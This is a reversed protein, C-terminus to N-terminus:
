PRYVWASNTLQIRDDYGGAILVDGNALRTSTSFAFSAGLSGSVPIFRRSGADFREAVPAGGAVLVDGNGLPVVAAAIKYRRSQMTSAPAFVGTAPDYREVTAYRGAGDRSDSGGIVLVSGDDLLVGAHKHRPQTMAGTPTFAGTRPDYLEATALVGASGGHGGILLVRGDRLVVAVHGARRGALSGANTMTGEVPDYLEASALRNTGDYGGAILVRGDRLLSATADSRGTRLSPAASFRNSGPDYLEASTTPTREWGGAIFVRGDTLATSTHGGARETSMRPGETFRRAAPDYVETSSSLSGGECSQVACGGTILVKGSSLLTATHAARIVGLSGTPTLTGPSIPAVVDRACRIPETLAM